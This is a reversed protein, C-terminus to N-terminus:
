VLSERLIDELFGRRKIIYSAAKEVEDASLGWTDPYTGFCSLITEEKIARVAEIVPRVDSMSVRSSLHPPLKYSSNPQDLADKTWDRSGCIFAQDILVFQNMKRTTKDPLVQELASFYQNHNAQDNVQLWALQVAAAPLVSSNEIRGYDAERFNEGPCYTFGVHFSQSIRNSIEDPLLQLDVYVITGRIVPAEFLQAIRSAALESYTATKGHSSPHWKVLRLTFDDFECVRPASGGNPFTQPFLYMANPVAEPNMSIADLM